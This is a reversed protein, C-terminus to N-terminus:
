KFGRQLIENRLQAPVSTNMVIFYILHRMADMAHKHGPYWLGLKKINEDKVFGKGMAATQKHLPIGSKKCWLKMVGIYEVSDLVLGARSKNRYEFSETIIHYDFPIPERDEELVAELMMELEIHHEGPGIQECAWSPKGVPIGEDDLKFHLSAWGTTGGPDFALYLFERM